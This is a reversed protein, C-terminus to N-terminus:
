VKPKLNAVDINIRPFNVGEKHYNQINGPFNKKGRYIKRLMGERPSRSVKMFLNKGIDTMRKGADQLSRGIPKLHQSLLDQEMRVLRTKAWNLKIELDQTAKADKGKTEVSKQHAAEL